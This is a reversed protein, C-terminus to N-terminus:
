LPLGLTHEFIQAGQEGIHPAVAASENGPSKKGDAAVGDPNLEGSDDLASDVVHPADFVV